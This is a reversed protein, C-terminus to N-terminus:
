IVTQGGSYLITVQPQTAHIGLDVLLLDQPDVSPNGTTNVSFHYGSNPSAASMGRLYDSVNAGDPITMVASLDIVDGQSKDYGVISLKKGDAASVKFKDMGTSGTFVTPDSATVGQVGLIDELQLTFDFNTAASEKNGANVQVVQVNKLGPIGGFESAAIQHDAGGTKWTVGNDLSYKWTMGAVLGNIQLTADNTIGDQPIDSDSVLEITPAPPPAFKATGSIYRTTWGSLSPNGAEDCHRMQLKTRDFDISLQEYFDFTNSSLDRWPEDALRWQLQWGRERYYEFDLPKLSASTGKIEIDQAPNVFYDYGDLFIHFFDSFEPRTTDLTFSLTAHVSELGHKDIQTVLVTKEGDAGFESGSIKGESNGEKWTAGGDVSYKWTAGPLLGTVTLDAQNTLRDDAFWGSDVTLAVTPAPPPTTPKEPEPTSPTEPEPDPHPDPNVPTEPTEPKGPQEPTPPEVDPKPTEPQPHQEEPKPAEPQPQPVEPKPAEPQPHQEDPKPTEPQPHPVEPKPAEPQPQQEDPKPKEPQPQPVEPKPVEPKPVEAVPPKWDGSKGGGGGSAAGVLGIAGLAVGGIVLRRSGTGHAAEDSAAAESGSETPAPVDGAPAEAPAAEDAPQPAQQDEDLDELHPATPQGHGPVQQAASQRLQKIRSM